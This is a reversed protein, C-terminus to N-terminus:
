TLNLAKWLGRHLMVDENENFSSHRNRFKFTYFTNGGSNHQINGIASCNFLTECLEFIREAELPKILSSAATTLEKLKFDRKRMKAFSNILRSIEDPTAYGSLEDQIEPLFYKISYERLGSKVQDQTIRGPGCFEQIHTLLRLFDRPTHRTSDLLYRITENNDVHSPFYIKFVDVNKEASRAARLQAIQVLLSDYPERPDHYWDLEIADDQRIKNKNAGPLREFIDTRCLVIIKVPSGSSSFLKNLRAVEFILASLSRYQVERSTLVDDLGDIILYHSSTSRAHSLMTKLSEVFSPLEAASKTESGSWSYEALKGPLSLTFNHKSSTRVLSAPDGAPSLGMMRFAKMSDQLAVQDPHRLAADQSFSELIYILLLWSWAAPYKVEPEVDGRVIKSFPTFPFDGLSVLKVFNGQEASLTLELREGISSKGAGKYGLFLYKAGSKAADTAAKYDIYGNLILSPDESREKEASSYGFAFDKFNM